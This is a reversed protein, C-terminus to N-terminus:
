KAEKKKLDEVWKLKIAKQEKQQDMEAKIRAEEKAAAEAAEKDSAAKAEAAM